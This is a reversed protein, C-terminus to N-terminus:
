SKAVSWLVSSLAVLADSSKANDVITACYESGCDYFIAIRSEYLAVGLSLTEHVQSIYKIPISINNFRKRQKKGFLIIKSQTIDAMKMFSNEFTSFQDYFLAAGLILMVPCDREQIDNFINSFSDKGFFSQVGIDCVNPPSIQHFLPLCEQLKKFQDDLSVRQKELIRLLVDPPQATFYKVQTRLASTLIGKRVLDQMVQYATIRNLGTRRAVLSAPQSGYHLLHLYVEAEKQQFGIRQLVQELM